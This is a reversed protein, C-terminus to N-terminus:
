KKASFFLPEIVKYDRLNDELIVEQARRHIEEGNTYQWGTKCLLEIFAEEYTSETFKAM